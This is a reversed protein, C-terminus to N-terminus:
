CCRRVGKFRKEVVQLYLQKQLVRGAGAGHRDLLHVETQSQAQGKEGSRCPCVNATQQARELDAEGSLEKLLALALALLGFFRLPKGEVLAYEPLWVPETEHVIALRRRALLLIWERVSLLVILVVLVMFIGAVM